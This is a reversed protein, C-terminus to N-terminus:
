FIEELPVVTHNNTPAPAPAPAEWWPAEYELLDPAMGPWWDAAQCTAYRVLLDRYVARGACLADAGLRWVAVDYPGSTQVAVLYVASILHLRGAKIAGDHYWAIQAHYLRRRADREIADPTLHRTTKLDVLLRECRGLLDVRGRCALGTHEDRWELEQEPEGRRLLPGAVPHEYLSDSCRQATAMMEQTVVEVDEPEAVAEPPAHGRIRCYWAGDHYLSGQSRCPLDRKTIAACTTAPVFREFAKDEGELVLCHVLRGLRLADTDPRPHALRYQLMLPSVAMHKLTSWNIRDTM